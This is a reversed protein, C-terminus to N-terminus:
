RECGESVNPLSEYDMQSSVLDGTRRDTFLSWVVRLFYVYPNEHMASRSIDEADLGGTFNVDFSRYRVFLLQVARPSVTPM